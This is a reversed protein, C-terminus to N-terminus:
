FIREGSKNMLITPQANKDFLLDHLREREAVVRIAEKAARNRAKAKAYFAERAVNLVTRAKTM